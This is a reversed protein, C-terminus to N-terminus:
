GSPINLTFMSGKPQLATYELEGGGREMVYKSLWLGLGLGDSHEEKFLDFLHSRVADAVGAGDDQVSLEIFQWVPRAALRITKAEAKAANNVLNLLVLTLENTNFVIQLDTPIDYELRISRAGLEANFLPKIETIFEHLPMMAVQVKKGKFVSRLTSVIEAVRDIDKVTQDILVIQMDTLNEDQEHTRKLSWANLKIAALPQNIEHSISASMAGLEAMKKTKILNKLLHDKEDLLAKIKTNEYDAKVNKATIDEVWFGMMTVYALINLILQLWLLMSTVIPVQNLVQVPTDASYLVVARALIFIAELVVLVLLVTLNTAQVTRRTTIIERIQWVYILFLLGGVIASRSEFSGFHRIVEFAVGYLAVGIAIFIITQKAIDVRLTRAFLGQFLVGGMVLTNAVSILSNSNNLVEDSTALAVAFFIYSTASLLLALSWYRFSAPRADSKYASWASVLIGYQQLGLLVFFTVFAIKM